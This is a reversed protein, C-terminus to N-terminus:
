YEAHWTFKQCYFRLVKSTLPREESPRSRSLIGDRSRQAEVAVRRLSTKAVPSRATKRKQKSNEPPQEGKPLEQSSQKQRLTANSSFFDKRRPLLLPPAAHLFQHRPQNLVGFVSSNRCSNCIFSTRSFMIQIFPRPSNNESGLANQFGTTLGSKGKTSIGLRLLYSRPSQYGM